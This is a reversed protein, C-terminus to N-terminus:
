LKRRALDWIGSLLNNLDDSDLSRHEYKGSLLLSLTSQSLGSAKAVQEQTVGLYKTATNVFANAVTRKGLGRKRTSRPKEEVRSLISDLVLNM